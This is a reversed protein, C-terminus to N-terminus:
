RLPQKQSAVPTQGLVGNVNTAPLLRIEGLSDIFPM